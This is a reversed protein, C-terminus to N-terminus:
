FKTSEVVNCNTHDLSLLKYYHNWEYFTQSM